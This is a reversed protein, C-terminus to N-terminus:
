EVIELLAGAVFLFCMEPSNSSQFFGVQDCVVKSSFTQMLGLLIRQLKSLFGRSKKNEDTVSEPDTYRPKLLCIVSTVVSLERLATLTRCSTSGQLIALFTEEHAMIIEQLQFFSLFNFILEQVRYGILVDM